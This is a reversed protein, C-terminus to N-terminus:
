IHSPFAMAVFTPAEVAALHQFFKCWNKGKESDVTDCKPCVDVEKASIILEGTGGCLDCSKRGQNEKEFLFVGDIGGNSFFVLRGNIIFPYGTISTPLANQSSLVWIRTVGKQLATQLAVDIGALDYGDANILVDERTNGESMLRPRDDYGCVAIGRMTRRAMLRNEEDEDILLISRGDVMMGGDVMMESDGSPPPVNMTIVMPPYEIALFQFFKCWNKGKKSDFIDCKPCVDVEKASIILEGTGGCLDCSKRGQNEKEFLFVGDIGGNSFFVLRGNIIFPYGTISTPLANQSSLVWIRTVGKQLATQLAVDIGALDYGDANILVDERTNGESMLRPRDDYGCVAIGRMTRRAM